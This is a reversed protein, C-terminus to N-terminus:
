GLNQGCHLCHTLDLEQPVVQRVGCAPCSRLHNTDHGCGPCFAYDADLPRACTPCFFGTSGPAIEDPPSAPDPDPTAEDPLPVSDSEPTPEDVPLLPDPEPTIPAPPPPPPEPEPAPPRRAYLLMFTGVLLLSGSTLMLGPWPTLLGLSFFGLFVALLLGVRGRAGKWGTALSFFVLLLGSVLLFALIAAPVLHLIGSLFILL